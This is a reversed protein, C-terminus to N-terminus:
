RNKYKEIINEPISCGKWCVISFYYLPQGEISIRHRYRELHNINFYDSFVLEKYIKDYDHFLIKEKENGRM